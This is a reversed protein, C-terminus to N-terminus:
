SGAAGALPALLLVPPIVLTSWDGGGRRAGRWHFFFPFVADARMTPAHLPLIAPRPDEAAGRRDRFFFPFVATTARDRGREMLFLPPVLVRRVDDAPPAVEGPASRLEARAEATLAPAQTVATPAADVREAVRPRRRPM